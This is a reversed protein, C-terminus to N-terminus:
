VRYGGLGPGQGGKPRKRKRGPIDFAVRGEVADNLVWQVGSIRLWGPALATVSLQEILM